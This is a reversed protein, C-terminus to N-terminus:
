LIGFNCFSHFHILLAYNRDVSRQTIPGARKWQAVRSSKDHSLFCFIAFWAFKDFLKCFWSQSNELDLQLNVVGQKLTFPPHLPPQNFISKIYSIQSPASKKQIERLTTSHYSLLIPIKLCANVVLSFLSETKLAACLNVANAVNKPLKSAGQSLVDYCVENSTEWMNFM